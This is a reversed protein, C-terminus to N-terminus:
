ARCLEDYLHGRDLEGWTANAILHTDLPVSSVTRANEHIGCIKVLNIPFQEGGERAGKGQGM